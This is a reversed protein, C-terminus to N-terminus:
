TVRPVDHTVPIGAQCHACLPNKNGTPHYSFGGIDIQKPDPLGSAAVTEKDAKLFWQCIAVEYDTANDVIVIIQKYPAISVPVANPSPNKRGKIPGSVVRYENSKM